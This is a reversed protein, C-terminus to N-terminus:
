EHRSGRARNKHIFELAALVGQVDEDFSWQSVIEVSRRGMQDRLEPNGVLKLLGNQLTEIDGVPCIFGNEDHRVLDPGTGVRDTVIVPIGFNMAENLAKPSPDHESPLVFIDAMAYFPELETQNKFGVFYVRGIDQNKVESELESRLPGDGVFVLSANCNKYICEFARLLDFPRKRPILKAVFLIVPSDPAIGHEIKLESKQPKFKTTREQWFANDVACPCFFLKSRPVSYHRYYDGNETYSFLFADIRKFLRPLLFGKLIRKWRSRSLLLDTEGRFLLPTRTMWAGFFTLWDTATTYGQVLIAEYRHRWLELIIGPNIAGFFTFVNPRPSTNALLRYSYGELSKLDGQIRVNFGPNVHGKAGIESCFYVILEIKPHEALKRLLPVHYNYPGPALVAFRYNRDM